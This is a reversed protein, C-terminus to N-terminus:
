VTEQTQIKRDAAYFADASVSLTALLSAPLLAPISQYVRLVGSFMGSALHSEVREIELKMMALTRITDQMIGVPHSYSVIVYDAMSASSVLVAHPTASEAVLHYTVMLLTITATSIWCAIINSSIRSFRINLQSGSLYVSFRKISPTFLFPLVVFAYYLPGAVRMHVYTIFSVAVSVIAAFLIMLKNKNKFKYCFSGPNIYADFVIEKVGSTIKVTHSCSIWSTLILYLIVMWYRYDIYILAWVTLMAVVQIRLRSNSYLAKITTM